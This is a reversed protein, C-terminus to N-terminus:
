QTEIHEDSEKIDDSILFSQASINVFPQNRGIVELGDLDKNCIFFLSSM